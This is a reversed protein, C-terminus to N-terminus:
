RWAAPSRVGASPHRRRAPPAGWRGSRDPISTRGAIVLDVIQQESIPLRVASPSRTSTVVRVLRM